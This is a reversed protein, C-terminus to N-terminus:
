ISSLRVRKGLIEAIAISGFGLLVHLVQIYPLDPRNLHALQLIGVVPLSIAWLITVAALGSAARLGLVGIVIMVLAIAFGVYMHLNLPVAVKFYYLAGTLLNVLWLLRFTMLLGKLM